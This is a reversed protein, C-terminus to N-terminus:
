YHKILITQKVSYDIAFPKLIYARTWYRRELLYLENIGWGCFFIALSSKPRFELSKLDVVVIEGTKNNRFLKYLMQNFFPTVVENTGRFNDVYVSKIYESDKKTLHEIKTWETEDYHKFIFFNETEGLLTPYLKCQNIDNRFFDFMREVKLDINKREEADENLKFKELKKQELLYTGGNTLIFSMAGKHVYKKGENAVFHVFDSRTFGAGHPLDTGFDKKFDNQIKQILKVKEVRLYTTFESM